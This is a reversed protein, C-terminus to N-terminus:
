IKVEEERAKRRTDKRIREFSVVYLRMSFVLRHHRQLLKVSKRDIRNTVVRVNWGDTPLIGGKASYSLSYLRCVDKIPISQSLSRSPRFPILQICLCHVQENAYSGLCRFISRHYFHAACADEIIIREPSPFVRCQFLLKWRLTKILRLYNEM